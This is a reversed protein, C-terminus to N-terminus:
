ILFKPINQKTIEQFISEAKKALETPIIHNLYDEVKVSRYSFESDRKKIRELEKKLERSEEPPLDVILVGDCGAGKARKAFRKVGYVFVPNYYGFLVMPINSTKRTKEMLAFVKDVTAGNKLARESSAQITPGDAMPDSFPIGLEIIDSGNKELEYVLAETTALDPDGATIFAILAKEGKEKLRTFTKSLRGASNGSNKKM